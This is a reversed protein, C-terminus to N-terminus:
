FNFFIRPIHLMVACFYDDDRGKLSIKGGCGQFPPTLISWPLATPLLDPAYEWNPGSRRDLMIDYLSLIKLRHAISLNASSTVILIKWRHVAIM